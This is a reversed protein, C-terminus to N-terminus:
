DEAIGQRIAFTALQVRNELHLKDMINCLHNKVTNETIDLTVAIEKNTVGKAVLQLVEIERQTLEDSLNTKITKRQALNAFENIIKNALGRSLVVEGKLASQIAEILDDPDSDKLLFGLAGNKLANFLDQDDESISLMIVKSEPLDKKILKVAELGTCEPMHIDMVTLDPQLEKVKKIGELGNSAEGVVQIDPQSNLISAIGKRFLAHDDVLVVRSKGM